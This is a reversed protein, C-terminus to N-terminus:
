NSKAMQEIEELVDHIMLLERNDTIDQLGAEPDLLSIAQVFINKRGNTFSNDTFGIYAKMTDESEFTFLIDCDIIKGDREIQIKEDNIIDIAM